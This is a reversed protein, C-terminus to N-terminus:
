ENGNKHCPVKIVSAIAARTVARDSTKPTM